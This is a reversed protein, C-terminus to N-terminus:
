DTVIVAVTAATAGPEPVGEPSTSNKSPLVDSPVAVSDPPEALMLVADSVSPECLRVTAYAPSVFKVDVVDGRRGVGRVDKRLLVKM